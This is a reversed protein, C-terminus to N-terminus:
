CYFAHTLSSSSSSTYLHIKDFDFHHKNNEDELDYMNQLNLWFESSTGFFRSFRIAIDASVASKGEIISNIKEKSIHIADSLTKVSIELPELFDEKLVEGPHINQLKNNTIIKLESM